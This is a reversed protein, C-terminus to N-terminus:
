CHRYCYRSQRYLEDIGYLSLVDNFDTPHLGLDDFHFHPTLLLDDKRMAECAAKWGVNGVNPKFVDMDHAFIARGKVSARVATLNTATLAARIEGSWVLALSLATAVGECIIVADGAVSDSARIRVFSGKLLGSHALLFRKQDGTDGHVISQFGTLVGASTEVPALIRGDLQRIEVRECLSATAEGCLRKQLWETATTLPNSITFEHYFQRFRALRKEAQLRVLSENDGSRIFIHKQAPTMQKCDKSQILWDLGHFVRVEGGHKFTHFRILPWEQGSVSRNLYFLVSCQGRFRCAHVPVSQGFWLQGPAPLNALVAEGDIGVEAALLVIHERAQQLIPYDEAHTHYQSM